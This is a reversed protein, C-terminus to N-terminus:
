ATEAEYANKVFWDADICHRLKAEITAVLTGNVRVFVTEDAYRFEIENDDFEYEWDNSAVAFWDTMNQIYEQNFDSM